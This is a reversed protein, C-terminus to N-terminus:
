ADDHGHVPHAGAGAAVPRGAAPDAWLREDLANPMVRADDRLRAVRERLPDTSVWVASAGRVMREVSRVLPRLQAADPHQRPVDLLDDDLDYLLAIGHERCHRLLAESAEAGTVAHRQTAIVDARYRTAQEADALIIDLGAAEALHDLPQILRIYACPTLAGTSFREPIVVVSTRGPRRLDILGRGGAAAPRVYDRAYFDARAPRLGAEGTEGAILAGRVAAFTELWGATPAAPDVLWTM